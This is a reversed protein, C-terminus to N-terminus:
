GPHILHNYYKEGILYPSSARTLFSNSSLRGEYTSGIYYNLKFIPNESQKPPSTMSVRTKLIIEIIPSLNSM